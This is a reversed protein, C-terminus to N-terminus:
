FFSDGKMSFYVDDNSWLENIKEKPLKEGCFEIYIFVKAANNM